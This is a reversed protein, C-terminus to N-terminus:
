AGVKMCGPLHHTEACLLGEHFLPVCTGCQITWSVDDFASNRWVRGLTQWEACHNHDQCTWSSRYNALSLNRWSSIPSPYVSSFLSVLVNASKLDRHIMPPSRTHLFNIARAIDMAMKLRMPWTLAQCIWLLFFFFLLVDCWEIM